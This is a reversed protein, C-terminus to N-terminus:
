LSMIFGDQEGNWIYEYRWTVVQPPIYVNVRNLRFVCFM